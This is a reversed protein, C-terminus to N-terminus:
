QKLSNTTDQIFNELLELVHKLNDGTIPTTKARYDDLVTSDNKLSYDGFTTSAEVPNTSFYQGLDDWKLEITASDEIILVVTYNKKTQKDAM